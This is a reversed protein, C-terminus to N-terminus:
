VLKWVIPGMMNIAWSGVQDKEIKHYSQKVMVVEGKQLPAERNQDSEERMKRYREFVFKKTSTM